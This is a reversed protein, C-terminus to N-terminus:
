DRESGLMMLMTRPQYWGFRRGVGADHADNAAIGMGLIMLMLGLVPKLM